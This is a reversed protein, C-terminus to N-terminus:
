LGKTITRVDQRAAQLERELDDVYVGDFEPGRGAQNQPPLLVDPHISLLVVLGLGFIDVM